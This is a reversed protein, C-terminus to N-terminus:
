NIKLLYYWIITSEYHFFDEYINENINMGKDPKKINKGLEYYELAKKHNGIERFYKLLLYLNESRNKNLQYSNKVWLEAQEIDNLNLYENALKYMTYWKLNDDNSKNILKQLNLIKEM